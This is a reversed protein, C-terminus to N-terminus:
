PRGPSALGASMEAAQQLAEGRVACLVREGLGLRDPCGDGHDTVIDEAGAVVTSLDDHSLDPRHHDGVADVVSGPLNWEALQQRAITAHDIGFSGREGPLQVGIDAGWQRYAASYGAPDRHWLLIEGVDHLLGAAFAQEQPLGVRGALLRAACATEVAHQRMHPLGGAGDLLQTAGAVALTQILDLGILNVATALDHVQRIRGMAASNAVTLVAAALGPDAAVLDTVDAASSHPDNVAAIIAPVVASSVPVKRDSM